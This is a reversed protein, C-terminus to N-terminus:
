RRDLSDPAPASFNIQEERESSRVDPWSPIKTELDRDAIMHATARPRALDLHAADAVEPPRPARHRGAKEPLRIEM